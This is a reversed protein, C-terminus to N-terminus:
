ELIQLWHVDEQYWRQEGCIVSPSGLALYKTQHLM